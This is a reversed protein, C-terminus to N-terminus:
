YLQGGMLAYLAPFAIYNLSSAIAGIMSGFFMDPRSEGGRFRLGIIFSVIAGIAASYLVPALMTNANVRVGFVLLCVQGVIVGFIVNRVIIGSVKDVPNQKQRPKRKKLEM